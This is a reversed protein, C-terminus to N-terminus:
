GNLMQLVRVALVLCLAATTLEISKREWEKSSCLVFHGSIVVCGRERGGRSGEAGGPLNWRWDEEGCMRHKLHFAYIIRM